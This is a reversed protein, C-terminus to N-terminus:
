ADDISVELKNIAGDGDIVSTLNFADASSLADLVTQLQQEVLGGMRMVDTRVDELEQNFHSSIHEPM